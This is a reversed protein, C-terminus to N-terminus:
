PDPRPVTPAAAPRTAVRAGKEALAVMKEPTRNYVCVDHGADILRAAMGRGMAGLGLLAVRTM